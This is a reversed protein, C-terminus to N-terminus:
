KWVKIFPKMNNKNLRLSKIFRKQKNLIGTHAMDHFFQIKCIRFCLRLHATIILAKTEVEYIAYDSKQMVREHMPDKKYGWIHRQLVRRGM